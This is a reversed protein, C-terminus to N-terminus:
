VVALGQLSGAQQLLLIQIGASVCGVSPTRTATVNIRWHSHRANRPTAIQLALGPPKEASTLRGVTPTARQVLTKLGASRQLPAQSAIRGQKRQCGRELTRLNQNGQCSKHVPTTLAGQSPLVLRWSTPGELTLFRSVVQQHNSRRRLRLQGVWPAVAWQGPGRTGPMWLYRLFERGRKIQGM